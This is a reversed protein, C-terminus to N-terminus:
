RRPITPQEAENAESVQKAATCLLARELSSRNPLTHSDEGDQRLTKQLKTQHACKEISSPLASSGFCLPSTVNTNIHTTSKFDPRKSLLPLRKCVTAVFASSAAPSPTCLGRCQATCQHLSMRCPRSLRPLIQQTIPKPLIQCFQSQFIGLQRV